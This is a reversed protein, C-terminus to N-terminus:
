KNQRFMQVAYCRVPHLLEMWHEVYHFESRSWVVWNRSAFHLVVWRGYDNVSFRLPLHLFYEVTTPVPSSELVEDLPFSVAAFVVGPLGSRFDKCWFECRLEMAFVGSSWSVDSARLKVVNKMGLGNSRSTAIKFPPHIYPSM